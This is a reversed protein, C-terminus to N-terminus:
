EVFLSVMGISAYMNEKSVTKELWDILPVCHRDEQESFLLGRGLKKDAIWSSALRIEAFKRM